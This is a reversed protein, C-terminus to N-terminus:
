FELVVNAALEEAERKIRSAQSAAHMKAYALAGRASNLQIDAPPVLTEGNSFAITYSYGESLREVNITATLKQTAAAM